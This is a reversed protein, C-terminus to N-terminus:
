AAERSVGALILKQVPQGPLFPCPQYVAFEWPEMRQAFCEVLLAYVYHCGLERYGDLDLAHLM